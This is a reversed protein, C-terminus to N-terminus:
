IKDVASNMFSKLFKEDKFRDDIVRKLFDKNLDEIEYDSLSLKFKKGNGFLSMMCIEFEDFWLVDDNLKQLSAPVVISFNFSLTLILMICITFFKKVMNNINM